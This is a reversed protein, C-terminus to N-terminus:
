PAKNNFYRLSNSQDVFRSYFYLAVGNTWGFGTQARYEGGRGNEGSGDSLMKEGFVHKTEFSKKVTKLYNSAIQSALVCEEATVELGQVLMEVVPPWVNPFDWQQGSVGVTSAVVGAACILGSERLSKVVKAMPIQRKFDYDPARALAWLISYDSAYKNSNHTSEVNRLQKDRWCFLSPSWLYEQISDWRKRSVQEFFQKRDENFQVTEYLEIMCFEYRLLIANLDVPIIDAAIVSSLSSQNQLWRSSFDWGSETGARIHRYTNRPDEMDSATELDERYSEPRPSCPGMFSEDRCGYHNLYMRPVEVKRNRMWWAYEKELIGLSREAFEVDNTAQVYALVMDACMPPQSRGKYYRRSGNPIMGFEEVFSLLNEIMGKATSHMDCALLGLIIWYSDWYYIERFRGGPVIFGNKLHQSLLTSYLHASPNKVTRGLVKWLRNMETVVSVDNEDMEECAEVAQILKPREQWDLPTWEVLESGPRDFHKRVFAKMIKKKGDENTTNWTDRIKLWDQQVTELAKDIEALQPSDKHKLKIPSDVFRKCDKFVNSVQVAHLIEGECWLEMSKVEKVKRVVLLWGLFSQVVRSFEQAEGNARLFVTEKSKESPRQVKEM